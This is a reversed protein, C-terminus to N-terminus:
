AIRPTPSADSPRGVFTLGPGTGIWPAALALLSVLGSAYLAPTGVVSALLALVFAARPWRPGVLAASITGIALVAYSAWSIGTMGSVSLQTASNGALTGLYEVYSGWGAGILGLTFMTGLAVLSVGLTRWRRTGVLWGLMAIPALKIAAAVGILWGAAMRDRLLWLLVYLAPMFANVNAVALQEGIAHSLLFALFVAPLGVRVMLFLVTGLLAVWCAVVWATMGWNVAALPRWLVAIPPPSLLPASYLGPITLVLRDGAELHYLHHGANLREGAALYTNADTFPEMLNGPEDYYRINTMAWALATGIVLGVLLANVVRQTAPHLPPNPLLGLAM